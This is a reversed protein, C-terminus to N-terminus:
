GSIMLVRILLVCALLWCTATAIGTMLAVTKAQEDLDDFDRQIRMRLEPEDVM